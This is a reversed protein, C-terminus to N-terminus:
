LRRRSIDSNDNENIYCIESDKLTHLGVRNSYDINYKNRKVVIIDLGTAKSSLIDYDSIEDYCYIAFPVPQELKSNFEDNKRNPQSIILENYHM